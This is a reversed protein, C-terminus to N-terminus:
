TPRPIGALRCFTDTEEDTLQRCCHRHRPCGPCWRPGGRDVWFLRFPDYGEGFCFSSGRMWKPPLVELWYFYDEESVEYVRDSVSICEVHEKWNESPPASVAPALKLQAIYERLTTPTAM